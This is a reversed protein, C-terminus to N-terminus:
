EPVTPAAGPDAVGYRANHEGLRPAVGRHFPRVGDFSLPLATLQFDEGPVAQLMALAQVQPHVLAEPVMHIPARSAPPRSAFWGTVDRGQGRLRPGLEGLLPVQQGIPRSEHCFALRRDM